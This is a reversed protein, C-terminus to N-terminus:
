DVSVLLIPKRLQMARIVRLVNSGTTPASLAYAVPKSSPLTGKPLMFPQLGFHTDTTLFNMSIELLKDRNEVPM